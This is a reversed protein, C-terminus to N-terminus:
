GIDVLDLIPCHQKSRFVYFNKPPLPVNGLPRINGIYSQDFVSCFFIRHPPPVNGLTWLQGFFLGSSSSTYQGLTWHQRIYSWNFFSHFNKPPVNGLAFTATVRFGVKSKRTPPLTLQGVWM